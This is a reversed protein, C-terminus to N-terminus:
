FPVPTNDPLMTMQEPEQRGLVPTPKNIKRGAIKSLTDGTRQAKSFTQHKGDFALLINPCTGEKNKRIRLEREGEPKDKDALSLMMILDADQEIQGSERLASMDPPENKNQKPQRALQSLAVVTVGMSQALTHLAISISTVQATRSEGPGQLLQLYDIFIIQYGRMMTVARVDAPTMGAAPILELNRSTIAETMGCVRDWDKQTLNNRKIADMSLQAVSAMQRDFLKESSTELSFFGVKYNRAWHWACQLAWASKGSSPYGGIIIMDGLEAYLRDNLEYVPWTLYQTQKTHRDMFSRLADAMTTIKLAPKEVLLGNADELLKRVKETSEAETIQRALDQVSVLRAQERCLTIYYDLNAATPTIEMLQLIFSQYSGGLAGNVSVPDVATGSLFLKKIAKYVTLCTGFYDRESTESVVKPVVEACILASGLVSYQANLWAENSLAM